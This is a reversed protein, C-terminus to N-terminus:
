EKDTKEEPTEEAKEEETEESGNANVDQKEEETEQPHEAQHVAYKLSLLLDLDDTLADLTKELGNFSEGNFKYWNGSKVVVELEIGKDIVDSINDRIKKLAPDIENNEFNESKSVTEPKEEETEKLSENYMKLEQESAKLLAKMKLKKTVFSTHEVKKVQSRSISINQTQLWLTGSQDRLKVIIEAM